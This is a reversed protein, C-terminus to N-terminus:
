EFLDNGHPAFHWHKLLTLAEATSTNERDIHKRHTTCVANARFAAQSRRWVPAAHGQRENIDNNQVRRRFRSHSRRASTEGCESRIDGRLLKRSSSRHRFMWRPIGAPPRYSRGRLVTRAFRGRLITAADEFSRCKGPGKPPTRTNRSL